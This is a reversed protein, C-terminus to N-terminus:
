ITLGTEKMLTIIMPTLELAKDKTMWSMEKIIVEMSMNLSIMEQKQYEMMM